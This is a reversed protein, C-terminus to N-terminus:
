KKSARLDGVAAWWIDLGGQGGPRDSVFYLRTGDPSLSPSMDGRKADPHNLATVPEPISWPAGPKTRTSRFIGTREKALPGQLYMILANPTLTAHHFDRSFGVEKADGIPGPKPGAAVLLTWGKDKKRSFYFETAGPTVWPHLEDSRTSIGPLPLPALGAHRWRLDFNKLDKLEEPVANTAFYIKGDKHLFPSREDFERSDLDPVPKGGPWDKTVSPRQSTWIDWSKEANSAYYLLLNNPAVCPDDEDADTNIKKLNIAKALSPKEGATSSVSGAPAPRESPPVAELLALVAWGTATVSIFQSKGGPDGNDFFIQIPRSRTEVLWSGDEKQTKLLYDIGKRFLPDTTKLGALRLAVLTSGTAYADSRLDATQAWGGDERQDKALAERASAIEEKEAEGCVLGRLRFVKDETTSAKNTRLWDVGNALAAEVRKHLEEAEGAPPGYRKLSFLALATSTFLSGESPPRNATAPWAGDKRQRVLLFEVLAATTGDRPHDVSAFTALAYGATTNAGGIGQGKTIQEHKQFSKRSFAIQEQIRKLDVEFGRGRAAALAIVPLAQHHCSFCQRHKLYNGAAQDVRRLGKEIAKRVPADDAAAPAPALLWISVLFLRKM